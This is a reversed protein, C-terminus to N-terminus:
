LIVRVQDGVHQYARSVYTANVNVVALAEDSLLAMIDCSVNAIYISYKVRTDLFCHLLNM